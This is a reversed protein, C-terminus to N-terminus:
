TRVISEVEALLEYVAARCEPENLTPTHGAHPITLRKMDPKIDQMHMATEESLVDSQGGRILLTPTHRLARFLLWLPVPSRAGSAMCKAIAPDWAIHLMGDEGPIFSGATLDRWDQESTLGINGFAVKAHHMAADWDPQPHDNGIYAIIRGVGNTHIDPGIDNIVLAKMFGPRLAALGMSLLGGLSTGIVIAHKLHLAHILTNIDRLLSIPSYNHWNDDHDSKGRGRYDPALVRHGHAALDTALRHFDNSNRTIGSLCLIPTGGAMPNYDRYYLRVRDRMPVWEEEFSDDIGPQLTTTPSLELM